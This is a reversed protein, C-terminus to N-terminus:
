GFNALASRTFSIAMLPHDYMRTTIANLDSMGKIAYGGMAGSMLVVLLFGTILKYRIRM